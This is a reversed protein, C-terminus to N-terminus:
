LLSKLLSGVPLIVLPKNISILRKKNGSASIAKFLYENLNEPIQAKHMYRRLLSCPCKISSSEAIVVSRGERLQDTKSKEISITVYGENFQVDRSHILPLESSRLFGSFALIFM